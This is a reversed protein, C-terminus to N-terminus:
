KFLVSLVLVKYKRGLEPIIAYLNVEGIDAVLREDADRHSAM